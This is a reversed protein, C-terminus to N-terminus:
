HTRQTDSHDAAANRTFAKGLIWLGGLLYPVCAPVWMILGALQQDILPDMGLEPARTVYIPYLTRRSFTLLAGLLGMLMMVAVLAVFAPAAGARPDRVCRMVSSWFWLGAILFSAHMLVHLGDNDLAATTAAPLHWLWMVAGQALTASVLAALLRAHTASGTRHLWRSWTRPLAHAAVAWPQGALLLPPAVALLLMHQAMHAALSWEGFADLPWVLALFLVAVGLWFATAAPISVGRGAGAQRWLRIQGVAYLVVTAIPVALYLPDLTWASAM